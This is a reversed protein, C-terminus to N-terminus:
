CVQFTDLSCEIQQQLQAAELQLATDRQQQVATAAQEEQKVQQRRREREQQRITMKREQEANLSELEQVNILVDM